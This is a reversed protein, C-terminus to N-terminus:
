EPTESEGESEDWVSHAATRVEDIVEELDDYVFINIQSELEGELDEDLLDSITGRLEGMMAERGPSYYMRAVLIDSTMLITQALAERYQIMRCQMEVLEQRLNQLEAPVAFELIHQAVDAVIGRPPTRSRDRSM